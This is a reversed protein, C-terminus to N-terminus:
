CPLNSTKKKKVSELICISILVLSNLYHITVSYVKTLKITKRSM